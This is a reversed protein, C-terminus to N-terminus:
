LDAVEQQKALNKLWDGRGTPVFHKYFRAVGLIVGRELPAFHLDCHRWREPFMASRQLASQCQHSNDIFMLSRRLWPAIQNRGKEGQAIEGTKTDRHYFSRLLEGCLCLSCLPQVSLRM